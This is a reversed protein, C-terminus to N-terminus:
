GEIWDLIRLPSTSIIERVSDYPDSSNEQWQQQPMGVDGSAWYEDAFHENYVTLRDYKSPRATCVVAKPDVFEVRYIICTNWKATDRFIQAECLLLFAFSAHMRSVRDAFRNKRVEELYLEKFAHQHGLGSRRIIRAWNGPQIV